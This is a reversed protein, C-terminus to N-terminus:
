KGGRSRVCVMRSPLNSSKRTAWFRASWAGDGAVTLGVLPLGTAGFVAGANGQEAAVDDRSLGQCGRGLPHSHLLALGAENSAAEAM